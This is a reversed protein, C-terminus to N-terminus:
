IVSDWQQIAGDNLLLVLDSSAEALARSIALEFTPALGIKIPREQDPETVVTMWPTNSGSLPHDSTVQDAHYIEWMRIPFRQGLAAQPDRRIQSSLRVRAVRWDGGGHAHTTIAVGEWEPHGMANMQEFLSNGNTDTM